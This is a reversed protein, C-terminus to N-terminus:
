KVASLAVGDVFITLGARAEERADEVDRLLGVLQGEDDPVGSLWVRGVADRIELTSDLPFGERRLRCFVLWDTIGSPRLVLEFDALKEDDFRIVDRQGTSAAAVAVPQNVNAARLMFLARAQAVAQDFRARNRPSMMLALNDDEGMTAQRMARADWYAQQRDFRADDLELMLEAALKDFEPSDPLDVSM